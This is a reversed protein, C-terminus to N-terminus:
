GKRKWTQTRYLGTWHKGRVYLVNADDELWMVLKYTTDSEPDYIKGDWEKDGDPAAASIIEMGIYPANARDGTCAECHTEATEDLTVAIKGYLKGGKEYVEIHSRDEGSNDDVTIWTGIASQASLTLTAVIVLLFTSLLKM